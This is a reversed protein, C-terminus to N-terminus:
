AAPAALILLTRALAYRTRGRPTRPDYGLTGTLSAARSQVSSHHMGLHAAAARVSGADALADLVRRSRDDLSALAAADPHLAPAADAAEAFLLLAGLDSADVVPEAPTALRFAVLAAAWSEPLREPPLILGLGATSGDIWPTSAGTPSLVARALGHTTAVIANPAAHPFPPGAPLADVRLPVGADLRLRALARAREEASAYPNVATEVVGSEDATRRSTTIEVAIALRELVMTDNAHPQGGREIWVVGDAGVRRSRAHRPLHVAVAPRSAGEVSESVPEPEPESGSVSGPESGPEPESEPGPGLAPDVDLHPSPSGSADAEHVPLRGGDPSIRIRRRESAFGAPAGSLTAAGRLLAEVGVGGGVLADFYSIVKLSESAEPDLATLRGVLEKMGPEM